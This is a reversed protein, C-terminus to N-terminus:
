RMWVRPPFQASLAFSARDCTRNACSSPSSKHSPAPKVGPQPQRKGGESSEPYQSRGKDIRRKQRQWQYRIHQQHFDGAAVCDSHGIVRRHRRESRESAANPDIPQRAFASFGVVSSCLTARGPGNSVYDCFVRQRTTKGLQRVMERAM